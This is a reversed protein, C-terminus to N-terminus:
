SIRSRQSAAAAAHASVFPNSSPAAAAASNLTQFPQLKSYSDPTLKLLRSDVGHQRTARM